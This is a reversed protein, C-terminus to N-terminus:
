GVPDVRFLVQGYEVAQQNEVLVEAISGTCDANIENFIKMAEILCVVTNPSVKSGVKVFVPSEPNASAYFTGVTPSKIEILNRGAATPKEPKAAAAAPAAAPQPAAVPAIAAPAAMPTAAAIVREKPGRRLRIRQAGDHLDIESLEHQSMMAVLTKITRIDFPGSTKNDDAM